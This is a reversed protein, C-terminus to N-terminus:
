IVERYFTFIKATEARANGHLAECPLRNEAYHGSKCRILDVRGDLLLRIVYVGSVALVFQHLWHMGYVITCM